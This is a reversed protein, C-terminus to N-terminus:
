EYAQVGDLWRCGNRLFALECLWAIGYRPSRNVDTIEVTRYGAATMRCVIEALSNEARPFVAAEILLVDTKGLLESAGELVKLDLGEADIKVIEPLSSCHNRAIENLTTVEVNVPPTSAPSAQAWGEVFSCSDDRPAIHFPLVGSKDAVGATLWIVQDSRRLLDSSYQRLEEQPEVMVFKARPFFKLAARTWIGRNAGVDIVCRPEFGGQILSLFLPRMSSEQPPKPPEIKILRYGLRNVTRQILRKM